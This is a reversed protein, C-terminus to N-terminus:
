GKINVIPTIMNIVDVLDKQQDIVWHIDKYAVPAEDRTHGTVRAAIGDMMDSFQDMDVLKHAERRSMVRGAGHSSSFLSQECGKGQVIYCGDRMNGPIVGLMGKEAHTAGKRHIWLKMGEHYVAHNHNRNIIENRTPIGGAIGVGNIAAVTRDIIELRNRLAFELCFNMDKIYNQGHESDVHLGYHGEKAKTSNSAIKMYHQATAHGVNRSGSHVIIWVKKHVDEGIEIFHNGSGLTGLQHDGGREKYMKYFFDSYDLSAIGGWPVPDENHKFGVPVHKYVNEFIKEQNERIEQVLFDTEVACMGCGIDYGVWACVIVKNTAVVAGIPLAYGFHCDPMVAGQVAFDCAMAEFFQHLAKGDIGEAGYIAWKKNIM